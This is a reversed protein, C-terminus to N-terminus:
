RRTAIPAYVVDDEEKSKSNHQKKYFMPEAYTIEDGSTQVEQGTNRHRRYIWFIGVAALILLSGAAAPILVILSVSGEPSWMRQRQNRKERNQNVCHQGLEAKRRYRFQKRCKRCICCMVVAAVILLSGVAAFILVIYFLPLGQDDSSDHCLHTINLHKMQKSIPNNIVCSYTNKDQYEVELPLSLSICVCRCNITTM